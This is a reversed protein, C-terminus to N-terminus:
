KVKGKSYKDVLKWNDQESIQKVESPQILNIFVPYTNIQPVEFHYRLIDCAVESPISLKPFLYHKDQCSVIYFKAKDQDTKELKYDDNFRNSNDKVPIFDNLVNLNGNNQNYKYVLSQLEQSIGQTKNPKINTEEAENKPKANGKESQLSNIKSDKIEIQQELTALRNQKEQLDSQLQRITEQEAQLTINLQQINAQAKSQESELKQELEQVSDKATKWDNQVQELQSRLEQIQENNLEHSNSKDDKGTAVLENQNAILNSKQSEYERKILPILKTEMCSNFSQDVQDKILDPIEALQQNIEKIHEHSYEQQSNGTNISIKEIQKKIDKWLIHFNHELDQKFYDKIQDNNADIKTTILQDIKELLTEQLKIEINSLAETQKKLFEDFYQLIKSLAESEKLGVFTQKKKSSDSLQDQDAGDVTRDGKKYLVVTIFLGLLLVLLLGLISYQLNQQFDLRKDLGERYKKEQEQSVWEKVQNLLQKINQLEQRIKTEPSDVTQQTDSSPQNNAKLRDTDLNINKCTEEIQNFLDVITKYTKDNNSQQEIQQKLPSVTSTCLQDVQADVNTWALRLQEPTLETKVGGLAKIVADLKSNLMPLNSQLEDLLPLKPAPPSTPSSSAQSSPSASPSTAPAPSNPLAFLCLGGIAIAIAILWSDRSFSPLKM